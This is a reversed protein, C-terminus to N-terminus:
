NCLETKNRNKTHIWIKSMRNKLWRFYSVRYRCMSLTVSYVVTLNSVKIAILHVLTKESQWGGWHTLSKSHRQEWPYCYQSDWHETVCPATGQGLASVTLRQDTVVKYAQTWDWDLLIYSNHHISHCPAPKKESCKPKKRGTHKWWHEMNIWEDTM